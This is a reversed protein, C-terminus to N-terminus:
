AIYPEEGRSSEASSAPWSAISNLKALLKVLDTRMMTLAATPIRALNEASQSREKEILLGLAVRLDLINQIEQEHLQQKLQQVQNELQRERESASTFSTPLGDNDRRGGQRKTVAQRKSTHDRGSASRM